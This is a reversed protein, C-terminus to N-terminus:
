FITPPVAVSNWTSLEFATYIGALTVGTALLVAYLVISVFTNSCLAAVLYFALTHNVFIAALLSFRIQNRKTMPVRFILVLYVVPNLFDAVLALLDFSGQIYPNATLSVLVLNLLFVSYVSILVKFTTRWSLPRTTGFGSILMIGIVSMPLEAWVHLCILTISVSSLWTYIFTMYVTGVWGFWIFVLFPLFRDRWWTITDPASSSDVLAKRDFAQNVESQGIHRTKIKVLAGFLGIVSIVILFSSLVTIATAVDPYCEQMTGILFFGTQFANTVFANLQTIDGNFPALCVGTGCDM